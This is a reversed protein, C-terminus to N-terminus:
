SFRYGNENVEIITTKFPFREAPVKAIQDQLNISGTFLVHKTGNLEIQLHLCKGNGKDKFDSAEIRYGHVIIPLNLVKKIKIKEGIFAKSELEIGFYKFENM